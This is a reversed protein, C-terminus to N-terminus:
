NCCETIAFAVAPVQAIVYVRAFLDVGGNEEGDGDTVDTHVVSVTLEVISRSM